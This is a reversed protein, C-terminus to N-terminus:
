GFFNMVLHGNDATLDVAKVALRTLKAFSLPLFISSGGPLIYYQVAVESGSAGKALELISGSGNFLEVGNAPAPLSDEVEVWAASTVNTSSYDLLVRHVPPRNILKSM